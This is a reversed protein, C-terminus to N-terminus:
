GVQEELPLTQQHQFQTDEVVVSNVGIRVVKYRKKILEGEGAVHIEDGELFFAKKAGARIQNVFGYFKLPIPPPPPKPPGAKQRAIEEPTPPPEPGYVRKPPAAGKKAIPVKPDDKKAGPAPDAVPTNSFEFLSRQGGELKVTQVKALLDRRLTPDITMPDPRDEPRAPKLTPRFEQTAVRGGRRANDSAKALDAAVQGARAPTRAVTPASAAPAPTSSSKSAQKAGEPIDPGALFNTYVSYIALLGLVGAAVAKKPEKGLNM